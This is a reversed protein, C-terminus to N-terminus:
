IPFQPISHILISCFRFRLFNWFSGYQISNCLKANFIACNREKISGPLAIDLTLHSLLQKFWTKLKLNPLKVEYCHLQMALVNGSRFKFVRGLNQRILQIKDLISGPFELHPLTTPVTSKRM